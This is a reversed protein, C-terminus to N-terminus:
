TGGILFSHLAHSRCAGGLADVSLAAHVQFLEDVVWDLANLRGGSRLVRGLWRSDCLRDAIQLVQHIVERRFHFDRLFCNDRLRTSM